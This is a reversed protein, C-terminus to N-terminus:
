RRGRFNQNRQMKNERYRQYEGKISQKIGPGQVSVNPTAFVGGVLLFLGTLFHVFRVSAETNLTGFNNLASDYLRLYCTDGEELFTGDVAMIEVLVYNDYGVKDEAKVLDFYSFEYQITEFTAVTGNLARDHIVTDGIQFVDKNGQMDALEVGADHLYVKIQPIIGGFGAMDFFMSISENERLQRGTINLRLYVASYDADNTVNGTNNGFLDWTHYGLNTTNGYTVLQDTYVVEDTDNVHRFM